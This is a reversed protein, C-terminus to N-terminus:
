PQKSDYQRRMKAILFSGMKLRNTIFRSFFDPLINEAWSKFRCAPLPIVDSKQGSVIFEDIEFLGNCLQQWEHPRYYRAIAGDTASQSVRHLSGKRFLDGYLIGKLFGDVIYYKWISRHYIMVVAHGGPRLVRHMERLINLTNASHHIVGWSWIYDFFADPFTMNEADMQLIKGKTQSLTLRQATISSAKETIDMGTYSKCFPALLQAHSGYGVGIELVDLGALNEFDILNDFPIKKWPMYHKVSTFFRRDIEDFYARTGPEVNLGERWDYRMPTSEWWAKNASQWKRATDEDQPLQIPSDFGKAKNLFDKGSYNDTM